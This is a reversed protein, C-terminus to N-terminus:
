VHITWETKFINILEIILVINKRLVTKTSLHIKESIQHVHRRHLTTVIAIITWLSKRRRMKPKSRSFSTERDSHFRDHSRGRCHIAIQVNYCNDFSLFPAIWYIFLIRSHNELFKNQNWDISYPFLYSKILWEFLTFRVNFTCDM